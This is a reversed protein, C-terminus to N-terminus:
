SVALQVKNDDPYSVYWMVITFMNNIEDFKSLEKKTNPTKHYEGNQFDTKAKVGPKCGRGEVAHETNDYAPIQARTINVPKDNQKCDTSVLRSVQRVISMSM